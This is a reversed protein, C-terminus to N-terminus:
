ANAAQSADNRPERRKIMTVENGADNFTVEDMFSRMLSLGRGVDPEMAGLASSDPVASVDFGPGEDRVVFRAEETTLTVHVFVRRDRYPPESRRKEVLSAEEEGLLTGEVQQVEGRSIELNGHFLANLLAQKLAVGIRLRLAFDAVDMGAVMHQVLDVLPDILAADNELHFTFETEKLCRILQEYTRDARALALVEEMTVLLKDALQSKPVYSSAGRKLAETALTESGYATILVVPVGPHRQRVATVLELGDMEPMNLDTVILDPSTEEMRALAEVGNAAETVTWQSEKKLIECVLRREVGSDDVVIVSPM